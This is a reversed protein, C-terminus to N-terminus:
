AAKTQKGEKAPVAPKTEHRKSNYSRFFNIQAMIAARQAETLGSVLREEAVEGVIVREADALGRRSDIKLPFFQGDISVHIGMGVTSFMTVIKHLPPLARNGWFQYILSKTGVGTEKVIEDATSGKTHAHDRFVVGLPKNM